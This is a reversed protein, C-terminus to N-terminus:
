DSFRAARAPMLRPFFWQREDGMRERCADPMWAELGQMVVMRGKNVAIVIQSDVGARIMAMRGLDKITGSAKATNVKLSM